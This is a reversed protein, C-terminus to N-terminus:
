RPGLFRDGNFHIMHDPMDATWVETDWAIDTVYKRFTALDLFASIFVSGSACGTLMTQIEVIRKSSVPGHSTVAEVFFLWDRAEDHLVVDPLKSHETVAINLAKLAPTDVVLMKQTTDGLYLLRAGPAFRPAFEEIIAAQLQNHKGPSLDITTGDPLRVPVRNFQRARQYAAVLGPQQQLFDAAADQWASTGYTQM